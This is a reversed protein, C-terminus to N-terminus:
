TQVEQGTRGEDKRVYGKQGARDQEKGNERDYGELYRGTQEEKDQGAKDKKVVQGPEDNETDQGIKYQRTM